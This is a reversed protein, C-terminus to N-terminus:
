QVKKEEKVFKKYLASQMIRRAMAIFFKCFGREATDIQYSSVGLDILLGDFETIGMDRLVQPADKYNSHVVEVNKKDKFRTRCVKVADMDRDFGILRGKNSLHSAIVSSHGGGGMTCDIYVGDKQINLGEIVEELLVSKHKFEM